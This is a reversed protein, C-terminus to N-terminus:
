IISVPSEIKSNITLRVLTQSMWFEYKNETFNLNSNFIFDYFLDFNSHALILYYFWPRDLNRNAFYSLIYTCKRRNENDRAQMCSYKPVCHTFKFVQSLVKCM